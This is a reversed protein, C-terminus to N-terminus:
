NAIRFAFSGAGVEYLSEIATRQTPRPDGTAEIRKGETAPVHITATVGSPITVEVRTLGDPGKEWSSRITGHPTAYSGSAHTLDGILAPAIEVHRYAISGPSQRIGAVGSILWADVQGLFHHNQSGGGSFNEPLTTYGNAVLYGYGPSTPNTVLAYLVDHRGAAELARFLPGVGVSGTTIHNGAKRVSAVLRARVAEVEAPPVLGADLAMANSTESDSGYYPGAADTHRFRTNFEKALEAALASYKAEDQKKRLVGAIKAMDTVATFHGAVVPLQLPTTNDNASWDGLGPIDGNNAAKTVAEYDL